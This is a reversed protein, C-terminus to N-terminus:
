DNQLHDNFTSGLLPDPVWCRPMCVHGAETSWLDRPHKSQLLKPRASSILSRVCVCMRVCMNYIYKYIYICICINIYINGTCTHRYVYMCIYM